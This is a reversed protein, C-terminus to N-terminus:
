AAFSVVRATATHQDGTIRFGAQGVLALVLNQAVMQAAAKVLATIQPTLADVERQNRGRVRIVGDADIEITIDGVAFYLEGSSYTYVDISYGNLRQTANGVTARIATKLMNLTAQDKSILTVNETIIATQVALRDCPM